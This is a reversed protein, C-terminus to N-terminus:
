EYHLTCLLIGKGCIDCVHPRLGSHNLVHRLLHFKNKFKKQCQGCEHPREKSHTEIHQKMHYNTITKNCHPCPAAFKNSHNHIKQHTRLEILSSVNQKCQLCEYTRPKKKKKYKVLYNTGGNMVLYSLCVKTSKITEEYPINKVTSVKKRVPRPKRAAKIMDAKQSRRLVEDSEICQKKFTSLQTLM